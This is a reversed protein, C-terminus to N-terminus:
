CWSQFRFSRCDVYGFWVVSYGMQWRRNVKKVEAILNIGRSIDWAVQMEILRANPNPHARFRTVLAHIRADFTPCDGAPMEELYEPLPKLSLQIAADTCSRADIVVVTNDDPKGTETLLLQTAIVQLNQIFVHNAVALHFSRSTNGYRFGETSRGLCLIHSEGRLSLYRWARIYTRRMVRCEDQHRKEWDQRQCVSSCYTVLHCGSCTRATWSVAAHKNYSTL